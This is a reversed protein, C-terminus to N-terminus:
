AALRGCADRLERIPVRGILDDDHTVLACRKTAILSAHTVAADVPTLALGFCRRSGVLQDALRPSAVPDFCPLLPAPVSIIPAWSDADGDLHLVGAARFFRLSSWLPTTAQAYESPEVGARGDERVLIVGGGHEAVFRAAALSQRTAAALGLKGASLASLRGPGTIAVALPMTQPVVAKVRSLLDGVLAAAPRAPDFEPATPGLRPTPPYGTSWDLTAGGAELDWGTGPDVCLVDTAVSRSLEGVLRSRKGSDALYGSIDLAEAEAALVAFLPALLPRQVPAGALAGTLIAMANPM